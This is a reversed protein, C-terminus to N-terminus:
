QTTFHIERAPQNKEVMWVSGSAAKQLLQILEKAVHEATQSVGGATDRQWANEYESSLLQKRVDKVLNTDTAGPCVALVRVGTIKEHYPDGFSRTFGVIAHKTATYIPISVYPKVVVNSGTNVVTGGNGGRDKGMFRLALLTGRIVGNLNVDVELEWFRDNMIGANNVVIDLCGFESITTQFSEEYQPYDTVDCQCFLVKDKGYKEELRQVLQEGAEANIDCISVKVGHKLLEECYARGIGAAGGTVLAVKGKLDM